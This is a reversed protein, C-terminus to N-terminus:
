PARCRRRRLNSLESAASRIHPNTCFSVSRSNRARCVPRLTMAVIPSRPATGTITFTANVPTNVASVQAVVPSGLITLSQGTTVKFGTGSLSIPASQAGAPVVLDLRTASTTFTAATNGITVATVLQLNTGTVSVTSGVTAATPTFATVTVSPVVVPRVVPRRVVAAQPDAQTAAAADQVAQGRAHPSLSLLIVAIAVFLLTWRDARCVAPLVLTRPRAPRQTRISM